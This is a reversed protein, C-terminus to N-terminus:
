LSAAGPAPAEPALKVRYVALLRRVAATVAGASLTAGSLSDLDDRTWRDEDLDRGTFRALWREPPLFEPPEHFALLHTGEVRGAADLVVLLTEPLTRVPHTDLFAYGCIEGGRRAVYVTVLRSGAEVRATREVAAVEDETLFLDQAEIEEADPFALRLASERSHFVGSLAPSPVSFLATLLLLPAASAFSFRM